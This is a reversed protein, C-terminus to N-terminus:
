SSKANQMGLLKLDNQNKTGVQTVSSNAVKATLSVPMLAPIDFTNGEKLEAEYHSGDSTDIYFVKFEGANVFWSRKTKEYFSITTPVNAKEFVLIKGCYEEHDAWKIEYGYDTKQVNDTM